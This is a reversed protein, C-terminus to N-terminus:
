DQAPDGRFTERMYLRVTDLGLAVDWFFLLLSSVLALMAMAFLTEVALANSAELTLGTFLLFVVLAAASLSAIALAIAARLIRARRYLLRIQARLAPRQDERGAQRDDCLRRIGDIARAFRNTLSLLILGTGSILVFPAISAELTQALTVINM